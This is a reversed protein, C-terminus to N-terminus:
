NTRFFEIRRNKARGEATDNPAIPLKEGYGVAKLRYEEVGKDILYQKVSNARQLSLKENVAAPGVSDTFGRIEITVDPHDVLGAAVKDLVAYSEDTLLSSGSKFNVGELILQSGKEELQPM